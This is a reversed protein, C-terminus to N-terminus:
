STQNVGSWGFGTSDYSLSFSYCDVCCFFLLVFVFVFVFVVTASLDNAASFCRFSVFRFSVSVARLLESHMWEDM